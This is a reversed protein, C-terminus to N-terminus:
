FYQILVLPPGTGEVKYRLQVGDINLQQLNDGGYRLELTEVPIDRNAWWLWSIGVLTLLLIASLVRTLLRLATRM